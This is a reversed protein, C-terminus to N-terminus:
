ERTILRVAREYLFYDWAWNILVVIRNRFGVLQMLHIVLWVVWAAFGRFKFGGIDAVAANRGITALSGPNRYRFAIPDLGEIVRAINRGATRGMQVAVPAMMPLPKGDDEMYAADGVVFVEPHRPLALTPEVVLRGQKATPAGIRETLDVARVGASWILTRTRIPDCGVVRVREGDYGQVRCDLRVDVLKDRLRMVADAALDEDMGPLLRPAAELLVIRVESSQLLRYDKKLAVRILESLAGAMEVGTPGGGVVVVTLWERRADDDTEIAAHELAGLVHNRIGVADSIDKLALGHERIGDIGFFDTRAGMALVLYDYPISGATTTM